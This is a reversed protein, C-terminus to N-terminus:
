KQCLEWHEFLKEAGEDDLGYVVWAVSFGVPNVETLKAADQEAEERSTYMKGPEIGAKECAIGEYPGIANRTNKIIYWYWSPMALEKEVSSYCHFRRVDVGARHSNWKYLKV